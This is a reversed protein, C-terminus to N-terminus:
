KFAHKIKYKISKLTSTRHYLQPAHYNFVLGVTAYLFAHRIELINDGQYFNHLSYYMGGKLIFAKAQIGMGATIGYDYSSHNFNAYDAPPVPLNEITIDLDQHQILPVSIEGGFMIYTNYIGDGARFKLHVPFSIYDTKEIVHIKGNVIFPITDRYEMNRREYRIESFVSTTSSVTADFFIGGVPSTCYEFDQPKGFGVLQNVLGGAEIGVQLQATATRIIFLIMIFPLVQKM